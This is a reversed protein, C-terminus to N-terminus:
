ALSESEFPRVDNRRVVEQLLIHPVAVASLGLFTAQIMISDQDRDGVFFMALVVTIAVALAAMPAARVAVRKFGRWPRKADAVRSLKVLERTSHWACFYLAFSALTPLVAMLIAFAVKRGVVDVSPEILLRCAYFVAIAWLVPQASGIAHAVAEANGSPIVRALIEAVENPRFILPIWIVIGGEAISDPQALGTDDGFHWASILFFVIVTIAPVLFWGAIVISAVGLYFSLFVLWWRDPYRPKLLARGFDHDLGGHPMGVVAVVITFLTVVLGAPLDSM